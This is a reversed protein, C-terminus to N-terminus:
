EDRAAIAIGPPEAMSTAREVQDRTALVPLRHTAREIRERRREYVLVGVTTLLDAGLMVLLVFAPFGATGPVGMAFPITAILVTALGRPMVAVLLTRIAPPEAARRRAFVVNVIAVRGLFLAAVVTGAGLLATASFASASMSAGLALFYFSKLIFILVSQQTREAPALSALSAFGASHVLARSNGLVVGFTLAALYGSGGLVEAIAYSSLLAALTLAYIYREGELKHVVRGWALGGLLGIAAGVGFKSAFLAAGHAARAGDGGGASAGSALAGAIATVAVLSLLEALCTELTLMVRGEPPARISELLPIVVLIGPTSVAFGLLVALALPLGLIQLAALTVLVVSTAWAAVIFALARPGHEALHRWELELGGEFLVVVLGLPALFTLAPALMEPAVLRLGPGIALGAVLLMGIESLRTRLHVRRAGYGVLLSAGLFLFLPAAPPVTM